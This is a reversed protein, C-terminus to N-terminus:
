PTREDPTTDHDTVSRANTRHHDHTRHTSARPPMTIPLEETVFEGEQDCTPWYRERGQRDRAATWRVEGDGFEQVFREADIRQIIEAVTTGPAAQRRQARRERLLEVLETAGLGLAWLVPAALIALVYVLAANM